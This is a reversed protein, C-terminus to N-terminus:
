PRGYSRHCKPRPAMPPADRWTRAINWTPSRSVGAAIFQRQRRRVAALYDDGHGAWARSIGQNYARIAVDVDGEAERLMLDFWFAVFRGAHWPNFYDDADLTFDLRGAAHWKVVVGRAYASAGALGIDETGDRNVLLSRHEFWSESMVVAQVVQVMQVIDHEFLEGVAYYRTWYELVGLIAIARIPQPVVDWHQATMLPWCDGAHIVTGSRILMNRLPEEREHAPLRDWDEFHMRAWLPHDTRFQYRPVRRTFKEWAATYQVEVSTTDFWRFLLAPPHDAPVAIERDIYRAVARVELGLRTGWGATAAVVLGLASVLVRRRM